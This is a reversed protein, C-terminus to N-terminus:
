PTSGQHPPPHTSTSTRPGTLGGTAALGAIVHSRAIRRAIAPDTLPAGSDPHTYHSVVLRASWIVVERSEPPALFRQLSTALLDAAMGFIMELRDLSLFARVAGPEHRRMYALAPHNGVASSGGRLLETVADTLDDCADVGGLVEALMAVVERRTAMRVMAPKGGPFLRYVTARSLGAARAVDDVTTKDIGWRGACEVVADIVRSEASDVAIGIMGAAIEDAPEITDTGGTIGTM